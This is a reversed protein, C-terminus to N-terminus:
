SLTPYSKKSFNNIQDQLYRIQREQKDAVREERNKLQDVTKILAGISVRLSRVESNIDAVAWIGIAFSTFATLLFLAGTGSFTIKPSPPNAPM